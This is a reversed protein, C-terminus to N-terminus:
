AISAPFGKDTLATTVADPDSVQDVEATGNDLNVEISTANTLERITETVTTVCGDCKMNKINLQM